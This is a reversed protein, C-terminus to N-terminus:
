DAVMEFCGDPKETNYDSRVKHVNQRGRSYLTAMLTQYQMISNVISTAKRLLQLQQLYDTVEQLFNLRFPQASSAWNREKAAAFPLLEKNYEELVRAKRVASVQGSANALLTIAMEVAEGIQDM